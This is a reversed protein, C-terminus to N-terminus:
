KCWFRLYADITIERALGLQPGVVVATGGAAIFGQTKRRGQESLAASFLILHDLEDWQESMHSEYLIRCAIGDRQLRNIWQDITDNEELPVVVGLSANQFSRGVWGENCSRLVGIPYHCDALGIHLYPFYDPSILQAIQSPSTINKIEFCAFLPVHDPFLAALQQLYAALAEVSCATLSGQYLCVGLTKKLYHPLHDDIFRMTGKRLANLTAVSHFPFSPKDLGLDLQWFIEEIEDGVEKWDLKSDLKLDLAIAHVEGKCPHPSIVPIYPKGDRFFGRQDIQINALMYRRGKVWAQWKYISNKFSRQKYDLLRYFEIM